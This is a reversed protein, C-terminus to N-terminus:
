EAFDNDVIKNDLAEKLSINPLFVKVVQEIENTNFFGYNFLTQIDEPSYNKDNIRVIILQLDLKEKESLDFLISDSRDLIKIKSFIKDM